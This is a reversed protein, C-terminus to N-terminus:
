RDREEIVGQALLPAVWEDATKFVQSGRRNGVEDGGQTGAALLFLECALFGAAREVPAAQDACPPETRM